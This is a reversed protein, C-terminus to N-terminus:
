EAPFLEKLTETTNPFFERLVQRMAAARENSNVVNVARMAAGLSKLHAVAAETVPSQKTAHKGGLAQTSM